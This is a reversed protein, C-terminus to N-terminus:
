QKLKTIHDVVKQRLKMLVGVLDNVQQGGLGTKSPVGSNSQVKSDWERMNAEANVLKTEAKSKKIQQQILETEKSTRSVDAEMKMASMALEAVGSMDFRPATPAQTSVVGGTGAGQGAALVPSLGASLLDLRRRQVATDEREFIKNQLRKQYSLLDREYELQKQQSAYSLGAGVLGAVASGVGGIWGTDMSMRSKVDNYPLISINKIDPSYTSNIQNFLANYDTSEQYNKGRDGSGKSAIDLVKFSDGINKTTGGTGIM